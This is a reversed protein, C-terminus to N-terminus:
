ANEKKKQGDNVLVNLLFVIKNEEFLFRSNDTEKRMIRKESKKKKYNTM